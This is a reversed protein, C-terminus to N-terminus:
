KFQGLIKSNPVQVATVYFATPLDVVLGDIRKNRLAAVALANSNYVKPTSDPKIRNTIFQYSATGIQAGLPSPKLAPTVEVTACSGSLVPASPRGQAFGAAVASAALALAVLALRRM